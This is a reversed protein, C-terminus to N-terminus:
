RRVLSARVIALFQGTRFIGVSKLTTTQLSESRLASEAKCWRAFTLGVETEDLGLVEGEPTTRLHLGPIVDIAKAIIATAVFTYGCVACAYAFQIYLQKWNRDIFGGNVNTNVGDLAIITHSAFFGNFLM